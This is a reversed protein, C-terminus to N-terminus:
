WSQPMMSPFGMEMPSMPVLGVSTANVTILASVGLSNATVTSGAPPVDVGVVGIIAEPITVAYNWTIIRM